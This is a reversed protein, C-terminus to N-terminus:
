AFLRQLPSGLDGDGAATRLLDPLEPGVGFEVLHEAAGLEDDARRRHPPTGPGGLPRPSRGTHQRARPLGHRARLRGLWCPPESRRLAILRRYHAFVSDPDDVQAAASIEHFNPNVPFWPTGTSFGANPSDDWQMPTRADDRSRANIVALMM